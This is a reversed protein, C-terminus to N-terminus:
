GFFGRSWWSSLSAGPSAACARSTSPLLVPRRRARRETARHAQDARYGHPGGNCTVERTVTSVPRDLSREQRRGDRQWRRFLDYVRGWPWYEAPMDRWPVGTRVRFRVGDILQRRPRVPPRAAKADKPLLPELAAWQEDTLDGRGM